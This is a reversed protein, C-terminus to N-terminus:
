EHRLAIVPDVRAARQAPLWTATLAVLALMALALGASVPDIPELEFLSAEMLRAVGYALPLGIVAGLGVMWMSDRLVMRIVDGRAAGLAMRVGIESTRRAVAYALLGGLGIAALFLAVLGFGSSVFALLRETRLIRDILVTQTHFEVVPVAPDVEAAARRVDAALQDPSLGARIAFHIVGPLFRTPDYPVYVTPTTEERLNLFRANAALGVVEISQGLMEFREGIPNRGAFFRGGFRQDVVAVPAKPGDTPELARGALIRVGLTHILDASGLSLNVEAAPNFVGDELRIPPGEPTAAWTGRGGGQLPREDMVAVDLVGPIAKINQKLRELYPGVQGPTYGAQYPNITAYALNRADFGLGISNLNALSRSLLGAAVVATFTLALQTSVLLKPLRLGGGVIARAQATLNDNLSSRAARLAPALSFLVATVISLVTTYALMRWGPELDFANGADRGTQFVAHIAQALLHGLWLAACGGLIALIGSGILHQRVLRGRPAGLALRVASERQQAVSRSLLLNAVNACIILLLAGVLLMLIWLARAERASAEVPAFGRRGPVALLNLRADPETGTTEAALNRFLGASQAAAASAAVGPKLRAAQRVWWDANEGGTPLRAALASEFAFRASLPAYVDVWEGVALGFFGPPAVGVIRAPVNNVRVSRGLVNRDGGLRGMWYRHSLIVAPDQGRRDEEELVSRGLIPRVGLAAFFNASVYQVGVEVIGAGDSLAMPARSSFGVVSDFATQSAALGRYLAESVTPIQMRGGEVMRPPGGIRQVGAFRGVSSWELLVLRDPDDVPLPRLLAADVLAFIATNAGLGIALSVVIALSFVPTRRLQRLGYRVDQLVSELWAAIRIERVEEEIRTPNGFRLRAERADFGNLQDMELHFDIEERVDNQYSQPRIVNRIRSWVSM